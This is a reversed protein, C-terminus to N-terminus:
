KVLKDILRFMFKIDPKVGTWLFFSHAAQYVFMSKGDIVYKCGIERAYRVFETERNYIVDYIIHMKTILRLDVPTPDSPKMGLPTANIIIRSNKVINELKEKEVPIVFSGFKDKLFKVKKDDVDYVYVNRAGLENLGVLIARSVGGCGLVIIKENDLRIEEFSKIFGYIDTNYGLLKGNHNVVTNVAGINKALKDIEDLFPIIKEKYPITVNLGVINLALIADRIYKFKSHDIEFALYIYNLEYKKSLFTHLTPSLTHGLPYGIIGLLKTNANVKM